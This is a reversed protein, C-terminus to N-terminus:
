YLGILRRINSWRLTQNLDLKLARFFYRRAVKKNGAHIESRFISAYRQAAYQDRLYQCEKPLPNFVEDVLIEGKKESTTTNHRLSSTHKHIAVWPQQVTEVVGYYILYAFVPIDERTDFIEVYPRQIILERTAVISGHNVSIKKRILYNNLKKCGATPIKEPPLYQKKKGNRQITVNGGLFVTALSNSKVASIISSLAGPLLEDDADIFYIYAGKSLILGHNRAVGAGSNEQKVYTLSLTTKTLLSDIIEPTNDTSGDDVVIIEINETSTGCGEPLKQCLISEIVRSLLHGYNFTPIIISLSISDNNRAGPKKEAM